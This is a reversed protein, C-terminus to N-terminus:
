FVLRGSFSEAFKNCRGTSDLASLLREPLRTPGSSTDFKILKRGVKKTDSKITRGCGSEPALCKLFEINCGHTKVGVRFKLLEFEAGHMVLSICPAIFHDAEPRNRDKEDVIRSLAGHVFFPMTM